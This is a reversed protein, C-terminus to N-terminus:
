KYLLMQITVLSSLGHWKCQELRFRVQLANQPLIADARNILTEVRTESIEKAFDLYIQQIHDMKLSIDTGLEATFDRNLKRIKQATINGLQTYSLLGELLVNHFMPTSKAELGGTLFHLIEVLSQFLQLHLLLCTLIPLQVFHKSTRTHTQYNPQLMRKRPESWLEVMFQMGLQLPLLEVSQVLNLQSLTLATGTSCRRTSDSINSSPTSLM